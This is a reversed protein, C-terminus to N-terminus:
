LAIASRGRSTVLRAGSHRPELPRPIRPTRYAPGTRFLRPPATRPPGDYGGSTRHHVQYDSIPPPRTDWNGDARASHPPHPLLSHSASCLRSLLPPLTRPTVPPRPSLTLRHGLLATYALGSSTPHARQLTHRRRSTRRYTCCGSSWTSDAGQTRAIFLARESRKIPAQQGSTGM